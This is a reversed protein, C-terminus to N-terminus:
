EDDTTEQKVLTVKSVFVLTKFKTEQGSDGSLNPSERCSDNTTSEPQPIEVEFQTLFPRPHATVSNTM